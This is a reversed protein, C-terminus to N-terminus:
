LRSIEKAIMRSAINQHEIKMISTAPSQCASFTYLKSDLQHCGPPTAFLKYIKLVAVQPVKGEYWAHKERAAYDRRRKRKRHPIPHNFLM